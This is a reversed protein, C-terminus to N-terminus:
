EQEIRLVQSQLTEELRRSITANPMRITFDITTTQVTNRGAAENRTLDFMVQTQLEGKALKVDSPPMGEPLKSRDVELKLKSKGDIVAVPVGEMDEIGSLTFTMDHQMFGEFLRDAWTWKVDTDWKDGIKASEPAAILAAMDTASEIFDLEKPVIDKLDAGIKAAIAKIGDVKTITGDADVSVKLPVGTVAKLLAHYPAIDGKSKRSDNSFSQGAENYDLTLWDLTMTCTASGDAKVQDVTWTVEGESTMQMDSSQKQGALTVTSHQTRSNWIEYRATQGEVWRPRLNYAPDDQAHLTAPLCVLCMLAGVLVALPNMVCRM